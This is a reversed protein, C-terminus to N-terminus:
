SSREFILFYQNELTTPEEVLAFGASTMEDVVRDRALKHAPPPGVPLEKKKWDIIAVRGNPKLTQQLIALYEDRRDLHHYTDLILLLDISGVPLRPHDKSALVPTVNSLENAEIRERVHAVLNPEVEVAYVTGAAGVARSLRSIMYGTGTGLDAVTQGNNLRLANAIADPQQWADRKPDDFVGQWYEVDDFRRHSTAAFEGRDTAKIPDHTPADAQRHGPEDGHSHGHEGARMVAPMLLCTLMGACVLGLRSHLTRRNM